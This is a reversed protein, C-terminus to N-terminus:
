LCSMFACVDACYWLLCVGLNFFLNITWAQKIFSLSVTLSSFLVNFPREWAMPSSALRVAKTQELITYPITMEHIQIETFPPLQSM